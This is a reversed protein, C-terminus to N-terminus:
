IRMQRIDDYAEILKNRIQMLTKFALDAKQVASLVETVNQAQGTVLQQFAVDADKQLRNVEDLSKMLVDKFSEGEQPRARGAAAPSLPGGVQQPGIPLNQSIDNAM